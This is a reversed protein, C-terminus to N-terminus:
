EIIRSEIARSKRRVVAITNQPNIEVSYDRLEPHYREMHERVQLALHKRVRKAKLATNKTTKKSTMTEEETQTVGVAPAFSPV